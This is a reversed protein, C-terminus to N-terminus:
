PTKVAGPRSDHALKVHELRSRAALQPQDILDLQSLLSRAQSAFRDRYRRELPRAKPLRVTLPNHHVGNIRFEYHLHPGTALGTKGVYAITQGQSVRKGRRIGRKFRSLHAYLTSYKGGHQIILVNGYGGKRGAFVVKGDGTTKVPTGIPAAYDVGKHARIRNLIPHRRGLSFRSSIRSFRVPTRLFAKRMSNGKEDFYRAQGTDDIFRIARFVKGHNIFEAALIAGDRAKSGDKLLEEYIVAFRDGNRIDLAFDIDWGFIGVLQMILNDSLGAAQGALFLSNRIEGSARAIRKDPVLAELRATFRGDARKVLLRRDLSPEYVLQQLQGRAILFRLTQGPRLRKLLATDKGLSIIRHLTRPSFGLRQFIKAMNDGSVITVKRWDPRPPSPTTAPAPTAQRKSATAPPLSVPAMPTITRTDEPTATPPTAIPPLSLEIRRPRTVPTPARTEMGALVKAVPPSPATSGYIYTYAAASAATIALLGGLLPRFRSRRPRDHQLRISYDFKIHQRYAM